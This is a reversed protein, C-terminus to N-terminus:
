YEQIRHRSIANLSVEVTPTTVVYVTGLVWHVSYCLQLILWVILKCHLHKPSNTKTNLLFLTNTVISSNWQKEVYDGGCNLYKDHRPIYDSLAGRRKTSPTQTIIKNFHITSQVLRARM